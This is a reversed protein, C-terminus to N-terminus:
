VEGARLWDVTDMAEDLLSNLRTEEGVTVGGFLEASLYENHAHAVQRMLTGLQGPMGQVYAKFVLVRANRALTDDVADRLAPPLGDPFDDEAM